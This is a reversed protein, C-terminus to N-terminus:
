QVAESTMVYRMIGLGDLNELRSVYLTGVRLMDNIATNVKQESYSSDRAIRKCVVVTWAGRDSTDQAIISDVVNLILSELTTNISHETYSLALPTQATATM